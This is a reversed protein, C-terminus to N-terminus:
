FIMQIVSTFGDFDAPKTIYGGDYLSYCQQIDRRRPFGDDDKLDALVELGNRRPLIRCGPFVVKRVRL